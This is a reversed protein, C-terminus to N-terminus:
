RRNKTFKQKYKMYKKLVNEITIAAPYGKMSSVSM